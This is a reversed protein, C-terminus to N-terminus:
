LIGLFHRNKQSCWTNGDYYEMFDETTKRITNNKPHNKNLFVERIYQLLGFFCDKICAAIFKHKKIDTM